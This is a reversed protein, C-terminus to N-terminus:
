REARGREGVCDVRHHRVLLVFVILLLLDCEGAIVIEVIVDVDIVRFVIQMRLGVNVKRRTRLSEEGQIELIGVIGIELMVLVDFLQSWFKGQLKWEAQLRVVVLLMMRLLLLLNM